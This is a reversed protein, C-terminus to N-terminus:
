IKLGARPIGAVYPTFRDWYQVGGTTRKQYLHAANESQVWIMGDPGLAINESGGALTALTTVTASGDCWYDLYSTDKQAPTEGTYNESHSLVFCEKGGATGVPTMGQNHSEASPVAYVQAVAGVSGDPQLPMRLIDNGSPVDGNEPQYYGEAYISNDAASYALASASSGPYLTGSWSYAADYGLTYVPPLSGAADGAALVVAQSLDFRYITTGFGTYIYGGAAVVGGAHNGPFSLEYIASVRLTTLNTVALAYTPCAGPGCAGGAPNADNDDSYHAMTYMLTGDSSVAIGQPVYGANLMPIAVRATELATGTWPTQDARDSYTFRHAYSWTNDAYNGAATGASEPYSLYDHYSPLGGYVEDGDWPPALALVNHDVPYNYVEVANIDGTFFDSTALNDTPEAGVAPLSTSDWFSFDKGTAPLYDSGLEKGDLYLRARATPGAGGAGAPYGEPIRAVVFAAEHWQGDDIKPGASPETFTRRNSSDAPSTDEAPRFSYSAALLGDDDALSFGEYNETDSFLKSDQAMGAPAKFWAIVTFGLTTQTSVPTTGLVAQAGAFQTYEFDRFPAPRSVRTTVPAGTLTVGCSGTGCPSGTAVGDARYRFVVGTTSGDTGWRLAEQRVDTNLSFVAPVTAAASASAPLAVPVGAVLVLALGAIRAAALLQERHRPM